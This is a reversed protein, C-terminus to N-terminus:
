ENRRVPQDIFLLKESPYGRREAMRLISNLTRAPLQPTRSLIWLYKSSSSGVLAWEYDKGLEMVNYDSYFFWFFSVRLRGAVSTTHAKGHATKLRDSRLMKGSNCVDVTGDDRLTYSARVEVLGREFSHDYRAIEYWDGMYRELDLEAVSRRDVSNTGSGYVVGVILLFVLLLILM